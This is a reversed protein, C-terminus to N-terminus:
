LIERLEEPLTGNDINKQIFELVVPTGICFGMGEANTLKLTPVGILSGQKNALIGGSNGPNIEADTQVFVDAELDQTLRVYRIASVMGESVSQIFGFPSGVAVVREAQDPKGSQIKVTPFDEKPLKIQCIALDLEESEALLPGEAYPSGWTERDPTRFAVFGFPEYDEVGEVVHQNTLVYGNPHIITGSGVAGTGYNEIQVISPLIKDIINKFQPAILKYLRVSVAALEARTPAREPEFEENGVGMMLGYKAAQNVKEYYWHKEKVDKFM